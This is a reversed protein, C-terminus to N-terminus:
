VGLSPRAGVATSSQTRSNECGSRFPVCTTRVQTLPPAPDPITLIPSIGLQLGPNLIPPQTQHPTPSLSPTLTLFSIRATTLGPPYPDRTRWTELPVRGGGSSALAAAGGGGLGGVWKRRGPSGAAVRLPVLPDEGRQLRLDDLDVDGVPGLRQVAQAPLQLVLGRPHDGDAHPLLQLHTLVSGKWSTM